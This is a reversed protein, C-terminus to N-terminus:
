NRLKFAASQMFVLLPALDKKVWLMLGIPGHDGGGSGLTMQRKIFGHEELRDIWREGTELDSNLNKALCTPCCARDPLSPVWGEADPEGLANKNLLLLMWFADGVKGAEKFLEGATM